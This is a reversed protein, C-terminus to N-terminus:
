ARLIEAFNEPQLGLRRKLSMPLLRQSAIRPREMEPVSVEDGYRDVYDQYNDFVRRDAAALYTEAAAGNALILDHAETEVHLVCFVDATDRLPVWDINAGNVLAGANVLLGDVMMGHDATVFLDSHNGLAGAGIRVMAAREGAFQKQITQRGIWKVRALGGDARQVSSGITLTEVPKEGNPTAILTGEAFCIPNGTPTFNGAKHSTSSFASINAFLDYEAKNYPIYDTFAKTGYIAYSKGNPAVYYYGTYPLVTSNFYDVGIDLNQDGNVDTVPLSQSSDGITQWSFTTGNEVVDRLFIIHTFQHNPM